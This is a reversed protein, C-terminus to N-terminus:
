LITALIDCSKRAFNKELAIKKKKRAHKTNTELTKVHKM